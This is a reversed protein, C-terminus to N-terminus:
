NKAKKVTVCVFIKIYTHNFIIKVYLFYDRFVIKLDIREIQELKETLCFLVLIM